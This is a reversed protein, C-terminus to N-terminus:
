MVNLGGDWKYSWPLSVKNLGMWFKLVAPWLTGIRGGEKLKNEQMNLFYKTGKRDFHCFNM